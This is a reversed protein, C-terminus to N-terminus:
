ADVDSFTGSPNDEVAEGDGDEARATLLEDLAMQSQEARLEGSSGTQLFLRSGAEKQSEPMNLVVKLRVAGDADTNMTQSKVTAGYISVGNFSLELAKKFANGVDLVRKWPIEFQAEITLGSAGTRDAVRLLQAPLVLPLINPEPEEDGFLSKPQDAEDEAGEEGAGNAATAEADPAAGDWEEDPVGLGKGLPKGTEAEVTAPDTTGKAM